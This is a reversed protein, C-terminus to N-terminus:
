RLKKNLYDIIRLIKFVIRIFINKANIKFIKDSFFLKIYLNRATRHYSSFIYYKNFNAIKFLQDLSFQQYKKSKNNYNYNQILEKKDFIDKIFNLWKDTIIDKSYQKLSKIANSGMVTRKDKNQILFEIKEAFIKEDFPSLLGNHQDVILDNVGSCELLGIAPLGVSLGEALGNPFGEFYSPFVSFDYELFTQLNHKTVGKLFVRKDLKLKKILKELKKKLWAESEGYIDIQWNPYKKAILAFSKILFNQGKFENISSLYVIKRKEISLDAFNDVNDVVNGIRVIPVNFNLFQKAIDVFSDMQVHCFTIYNRIDSIQNKILYEFYFDPRSRYSLIKPIHLFKEKKLCEHVLHPFFFIMLDPKEKETLYKYKNSCINEVLVNDTKLYYLNIFHVNDNLKLYPAGDIKNYCIGFVEYNNDAFMNCFRVFSKIAGGVATTVADQSIIFIKKKM